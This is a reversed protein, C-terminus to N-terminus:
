VDSIKNSDDIMAILSELPIGNFIADQENLVKIKAPTDWDESDFLVMEWETVKTASTKIYEIKEM